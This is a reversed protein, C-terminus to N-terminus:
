NLKRPAFNYIIFLFHEKKKNFFHKKKSIPQKKPSFVM